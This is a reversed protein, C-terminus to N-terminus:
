LLKLINLKVIKFIPKFIDDFSANCKKLKIIPNELSISSCRPVVDANIKKKVKKKTQSQRM